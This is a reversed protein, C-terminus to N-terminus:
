TPFECVPQVLTGVAALRDVIRTGLADDVPNVTASHLAALLDELGVAVDDYRDQGSVDALVAELDGGAYRLQAVAHRNGPDATLRGIALPVDTVRTSGALRACFAPAGAPARYAAVAPEGGPPAPAEAPATCGTTLGVAVVLGLWPPGGIRM